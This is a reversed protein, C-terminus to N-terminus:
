ELDGGSRTIQGGAGYWAGLVILTVVVATVVMGLASGFPWNFASTFQQEIVMGIMLVNTGGLLAPTIFSGFSPIAVLVIGAIVGDKTIPLTVRFFTKIPGAGLDKSADILSDDMNTLSAYFPFTALPLWVYSLGALVAPHTYMIGGTEGTLGLALMVTDLVGGKQFINILAYMRVIYNTWFPLIILMLILTTRKSFRAISYALIYGLVVVIATSEATLVATRWLINVYLDGTFIRIYHDLSLASPPMEELLSMWLMSLLPLAFFAVLVGVPVGIFLGLRLWRNERFYEIGSAIAERSSVANSM